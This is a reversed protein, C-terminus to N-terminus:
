DIRKLKQKKRTKIEALIWIMIPIIIQFPISYITYIKVFEFMETLSKYLTTSLALSILAVPVAFDKYDKLKFLHAIGKAAAIFCVAIKTLGALIFNITITGEIRTLFDGINILRAATYSPFYENNVMHLGLVSLNRLIVVLLILGGLLISYTFVKYSNNKNSFSSAITLFLVTEGLPFSYINFAASTITKMDHNMIPLFVSFNMIDASLIITLILFIVGITIACVAWRGLVEVGSKAIYAAVIVLPIKLIIEPTNILSTISTFQSFNTLVLSGLHLSYWIFIIIICKGLVTGFVKETIECLDKGPYLKSIRAYILVIPIAFIIAIILAIWSDQNADSSVGMVVSSGFIFSVITAIIQKFSVIEKQL